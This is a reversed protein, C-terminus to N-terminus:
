MSKIDFTRADAGVILAQIKGSTFAIRPTAKAEEFMRDLAEIETVDTYTVDIQYGVEHCMKVRFSRKEESMKKEMPVSINENQIIRHTMSNVVHVSTSIAQCDIKKSAHEASTRYNYQKAKRIDTTWEVTRDALVLKQVFRLSDNCRVVFHYSDGVVASTAPRFLSSKGGKKQRKKPVPIYDMDLSQGDDNPGSPQGILYDASYERAENATEFRKARRLINSWVEPERYIQAQVLYENTINSKIVWDSDSVHEEKPTYYEVVGASTVNLKKSDTNAEEITDYRKAHEVTITWSGLSNDMSPTELLYMHLGATPLRERIVYPM